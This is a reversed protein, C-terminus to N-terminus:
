SIYSMTTHSDSSPLEPTDYSGLLEKWAEVKWMIVQNCTVFGDVLAWYLGSWIWMLLWILTVRCKVLGRGGNKHRRTLPISNSIMRLWPCKIIFNNDVKYWYWHPHSWSTLGDAPVLEPGTHTHTHYWEYYTMQQFSVSTSINHINSPM